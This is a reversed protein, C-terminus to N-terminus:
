TTMTRLINIYVVSTKMVDGFTAISLQILKGATVKIVVNSRLVRLHREVIHALREHTSDRNKEEGVLEDLRKMILSIQGCAHLAFVAALSCAGVTTSNVIFCSILQSVLIIKNAPSCTSDWIKNYFPCPLRIIPITENGIVTTVPFLGEIISYSFVGGHMFMACFGAIFRGIKAHRMMVERDEPSKSLSWDTEM